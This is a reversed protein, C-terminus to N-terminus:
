PAVATIEPAGVLRFEFDAEQTKNVDGGISTAEVVLDGTITKTSDDNPLLIFPMQKGRNTFCWETLSEETMGFDQLMKGKMTFNETREGPAVGGDLVYIDDGVNVSPALEVNTVQRGFTQLAGTEGITLQGHFLPMRQIPNISM